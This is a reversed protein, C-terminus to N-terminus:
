TWLRFHSHGMDVNRHSIGQERGDRRQTAGFEFVSGGFVALLYGQGIVGQQQSTNREVSQEDQGRFM